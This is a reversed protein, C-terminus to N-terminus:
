NGKSDHLRTVTGVAFEGARIGLTTARPPSKRRRARGASNRSRCASISSRSRRTPCSDRAAHRLRRHEEVRRDRHRHVARAGPRGNEPVVAHGHSQRARAPDGSAAADRRGAARVDDRWLRAPAPHRDGQSRHDESARDADGSRVEVPASVHHRHGLADLTEESLDKKRLSVLSVNFRSRDFRPIMWAFLRKVGHMRSGEWGLHDCVQLVNLKRAPAADSGSRGSREHARKERAASSARRCASPSRM